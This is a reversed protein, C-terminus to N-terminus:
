HSTPLSYIYIHINYIHMSGHIHIYQIIVIKCCRYFGMCIKFNTTKWLSVYHVTSLMNKWIVEKHPWTREANGRLRGRNSATKDGAQLLTGAINEAVGQPPPLLQINSFYGYAFVVWLEGLTDCNHPSVDHPSWFHECQECCQVMCRRGLRVWACSAAATSETSVTPETACAFRSTPHFAYEQFTKDILSTLLLSLMCIVVSTAWVHLGIDRGVITVLM